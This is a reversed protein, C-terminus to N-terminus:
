IWKYIYIYQIVMPSIIDHIFLHKLISNLIIFCFILDYYYILLAPNKSHVLVILFSLLLLLTSNLKGSCVLGADNDHKSVNTCWEGTLCDKLTDETGSCDPVVMWVPGTGLGFHANRPTAIAEGCGLEKCLLTAAETNFYEEDVTGWEKRYLVEVRGACRSGGDVLKM